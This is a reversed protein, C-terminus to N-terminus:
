KQYEKEEEKIEPEEAKNHVLEDIKKMEEYRKIKRTTTRILPEKSLYIEKVYKYTSHKKNVKKVENWLIKKIEEETKKPFEEADYVIKASLRLDAPDDKNPMGFVMSEQVGKIENLSYEIEDPYVNKGNKLVIVTKKRGTVYLFGDSDVRGLDGTRFWGDEDIAEKTAELNNYYGMMLSKTKVLIEGEGTKNPEDIKVKVGPFVRGVSGYRVNQGYEASIIPGTETAGYGQGLFLGVNNYWKQLDKSLEAGGSILLRVSGGLSNHLDRFIEKRKDFGVKNLLSAMHLGVKFSKEKGRKKINRLVATQIGGYLLPVSIMCTVKYEKMNEALHKIGDSYAILTGAYYAYLFGVTAEFVHNLPLFSLIVDNRTLDFVADTAGVNNCIAEQNLAVLKSNGTTASTFLLISMAKPNIESKIYSNYGKELFENGKDISEYFSLEKRNSKEEDMNILYKLKCDKNKRIKKVDQAYKKSYVVAEVESRIIAAELEEFKLSRDLPVVVGLGCTVAAYSVCWEYRNESVIAVSKGKLGMKYMFTGLAKYDSIFKSNNITRYEKVNKNNKIKVKFAPGDGFEILPREFLERFDRIKTPQIESEYIKEM